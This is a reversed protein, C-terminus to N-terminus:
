SCPPISGLTDALAAAQVVRRGLLDEAVELVPEEAAPLPRVEGAELAVKLGVDDM